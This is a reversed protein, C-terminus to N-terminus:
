NATTDSNGEDLDEWTKYIFILMFIIFAVILMLSIIFINYIINKNIHTSKEILDLVESFHFKTM